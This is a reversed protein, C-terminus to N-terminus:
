MIIRSWVGGCAAVDIGHILLGYAIHEPSHGVLTPYYRKGLDERREAIGRSKADKGRESHSLQAHAIESRDDAHRLRRHTVLEPRQSLQIQHGEPPLALTRDVEQGIIM